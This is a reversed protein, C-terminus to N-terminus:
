YRGRRRFRRRLRNRRGIGSRLQDRQNEGIGAVRRLGKVVASRGAFLSPDRRSQRGAISSPLSTSTLKRKMFYQQIHSVLCCHQGDKSTDHIPEFLVRKLRSSALREGFLPVSDNQRSLLVSNIVLSGPLRAVRHSHHRVPKDLSKESTKRQHSM